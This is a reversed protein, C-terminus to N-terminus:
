ETHSILESSRSDETSIILEEDESMLARCHIIECIKNLLHRLKLALGQDNTAADRTGRSLELSDMFVAAKVAEEFSLVRKM